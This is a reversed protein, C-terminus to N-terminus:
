IRRLRGPNGGERLARRGAGVPVVTAVMADDAIEAVEAASAAGAREEVSPINLRAIRVANVVGMDPLLNEGLRLLGLLHGARIGIGVVQKAANGRPSEWAM